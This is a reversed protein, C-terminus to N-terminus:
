TEPFRSTKLNSTFHIATKVEDQGVHAIKCQAIPNEPFTEMGNCM